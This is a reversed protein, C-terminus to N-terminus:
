ASDKKQEATAKDVWSFPELGMHQCFSSLAKDYANAFEFLGVREHNRTAEALVDALVRTGSQRAEQLGGMMTAFEKDALVSAFPVLFQLQAPNLERKAPAGDTSPRLEGLEELGAIVDLWVGTLARAQEAKLRRLEHEERMRRETLRFPQVLDRLAPDLRVGVKPRCWIMHKGDNYCWGPRVERNIAKEVGAPDEPPHHRSVTWARRVLKARAGPELGSVRERLETYSLTSCTWRFYPLLRFDFMDGAAPVLLDSTDFLSEVSESQQDPEAPEAEALPTTIETPEPEYVVERNATRRARWRDRLRAFFGKRDAM